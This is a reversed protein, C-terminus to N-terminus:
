TLIQEHQNVLIEEHSEVPVNIEVSEGEEVLGGEEVLEMPIIVDGVQM